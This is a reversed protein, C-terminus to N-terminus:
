NNDIPIKCVITVFDEKISLDFDATTEYRIRSFGLRSVEPNQAVRALNKLYAEQPPLSNVEDLEKQLVKTNKEDSYNSVSINVSRTNPVIEMRFSVDERCSYKVANELLESAVIMIKDSISNSLQSNICFNKVFDRINQVYAWRPSYSIKVYSSLIETM